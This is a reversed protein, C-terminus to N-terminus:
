QTIEDEDLREISGDPNAKYGKDALYQEDESLAQEQPQPEGELYETCAIVEKVTPLVANGPEPLEDTTLRWRRAERGRRGPMVFEDASAVLGARELEPLWRRRLSSAGGVRAQEADPVTFPSNVKFKGVLAHFAAVSGASITGEIISSMWPGLVDRVMNYDDLTAVIREEADRERQYQHLLACAKIANKVQPWARRSELNHKIRPRVIHSLPVVFPLVVKAQELMRQLTHHLQYTSDPVLQELGQEDAIDSALMIADTQNQSEDTNCVIARNADEADIDQVTTSEALAIPGYVVRRQVIMNGNEDKGPLIKIIKGESVMERFPRTRDANADTKDRRREGGLVIRHQLENESFYFLANETADTVTLVTEDPFFKGVQSLMYSKGSSSAGTVILNMPKPLLRSTCFLYSLQALGPEGAVAMGIHSSIREMLNEAMLFQKAKLLEDNDTDSLIAASMACPSLTEEAAPPNAKREKEQKRRDLLSGMLTQLQKQIDSHGGLLYTSEASTVGDSTALRGVWKRRELDNGLNVADQFLVIDDKIVRVMAATGSHYTFDGAYVWGEMTEPKTPAAPEVDAQPKPKTARKKTAKKKATPKKAM